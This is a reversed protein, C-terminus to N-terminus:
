ASILPAIRRLAFSTTSDQSPLRRLGMSRCQRRRLAAWGMSISQKVVTNSRARHRGCHIPKDPRRGVVVVDVKDTQMDDLLRRLAPRQLDGGSYGSDEYASEIAQWHEHRHADIYARCAEGQVEVSPM